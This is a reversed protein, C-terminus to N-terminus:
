QMKKQCFLLQHGSPYVTHYEWYNEFVVPFFCFFFMAIKKRCQNQKKPTVWLNIVTSVIHKHELKGHMIINEFYNKIRM